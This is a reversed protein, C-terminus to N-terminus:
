KKRKEEEKRRLRTRKRRKRSEWGAMKVEEEHKETLSSREWEWM